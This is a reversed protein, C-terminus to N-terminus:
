FHMLTM